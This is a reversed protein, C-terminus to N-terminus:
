RVQFWDIDMFGKESFDNWGFFGVRGGRWDSFEIAFPECAPCFERGNLSYLLVGKGDQVECRLYLEEGTILSLDRSLFDDSYPNRMGQIDASDTVRRTYQYRLSKKGNEVYVGLLHSVRSMLCMGAYQGDEMGSLEVRATYTTKEGYLRQTLTNCANYFGGAGVPVASRLRLFEPRETLSWLDNRPAHNWQWQPGLEPSSFDDSLQMRCLPAQSEPKKGFWVMEGVGDGDVDEGIVPWGDQWTVPLLVLPRGIWAQPSRENMGHCLFWWKGDSSQVLGGQSPLLDAEPHHSHLLKRREYPGYISRSRAAFQTGRGNEDAPHERYLMYYYGNIQYLKTAETLRGGHVVTGNDLLTKGDPSMRFLHIRYDCVEWNSYWRPEAASLWANGDEDWLPCCDILMDGKWPEPFKVRDVSWPGHIDPATCVVLGIKPGGVYLYFIGDHYRIAPAWVGDGYGSMSRFSFDRHLCSLDPLGHGIYEWNVMDRSHLLTLGPSLHFTSSVLYYDEGVRIVDPDSLDAYVIFNRYNGKGDDEGQFQEPDEPSKSSCLHIETLSRQWTYENELM